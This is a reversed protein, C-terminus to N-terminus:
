CRCGGDGGEREGLVYMGAATTEDRREEEREWVTGGGVVRPGCGLKAMDDDDIGGSAM